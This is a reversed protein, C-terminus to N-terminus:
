NQLDEKKILGKDKGQQERLAELAEQM